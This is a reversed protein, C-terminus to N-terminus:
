QSPGEAIAYLASDTRMVVTSGEQSTVYLRGGAGVPSSFVRRLGPLKRPGWHAVGTTPDVCTMMASLHRLFCLRGDELTPSAVYPTDRSRKWLLHSTQSLDGRAGELSLAFMSRIEYSSGVFLRGRAAVPSAVVNHSLGGAEWIAAGTTANQGRVRGTAATIVQTVGDVEVAIPSAWSTLEERSSRWREVGSRKDLAVLFSAEEHDWQTIVLDGVLLPSSGEGHGHKTFMDGLDVSWLQEGALSLAYLGRSGFPVVLVEGDTSCSASAWSGTEHVGEHPQEDVLAKKWVVTGDLLSVAWVEFRLRRSPELNHHAGIREPVRRPLDEGYPVATTLIIVGDWVVPSSHGQGPLPLRWTVNQYPSWALPPTATESIGTGLPGRWAGWQEAPNVPPRPAVALKPTAREVAQGRDSPRCALVMAMGVCMWAIVATKLGMQRMAGDYRPTHHTPRGVTLHPSLM